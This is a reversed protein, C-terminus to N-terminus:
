RVGSGAVDAPTNWNSFDKLCDDKLDAYHAFRLAVCTDAAGYYLHLTDGDDGLTYGCLYSTVAVDAEIRAM